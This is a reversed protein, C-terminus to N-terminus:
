SLPQHRITRHRGTIPRRPPLALRRGTVAGVAYAGTPRYGYAPVAGYPRYATYGTAGPPRYATAGAPGRYAAAGSPTRVATAGMPGRYAAGGYRGQVAGWGFAQPSALLSAVIMTLGVRTIKM